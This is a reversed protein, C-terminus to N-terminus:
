NKSITELFRNIFFPPSTQLNTELFQLDVNRERILSM